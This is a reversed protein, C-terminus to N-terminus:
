VPIEIQRASKENFEGLNNLAKEALYNVADFATSFEPFNKRVQVVDFFISLSAYAPITEIFGSFQNNNFHHDLGIVRNNIEASIENGFNITIANEGLSYIKVDSM